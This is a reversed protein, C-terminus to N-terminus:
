LADALVRALHRADRGAGDKIQHRCSTGNAVLVTEADAARVAPLLDLEAMAMSVDVHEAEYGFSGAMGCCGSPIQQVEANPIVQLAREMSAMTGFSKQHCHGHVLFTRRASRDCPLTFRGAEAEDAVFEEFLKAHAAVLATEPGPLLAAFEDRLTLLCSPELGVIAFGQDAYPALAQITRQAEARAQEVMGAALYTRGCCLPRGPDEPAADIVHYGGARLVGVAARANGPEFYRNFTDTFLVAMREVPVAGAPAPAPRSGRYWDRRWQPLSRRASLGVVAESLRALGPVRDRLNLVPAIAAAWPAYRPLHAILRERLPIGHRRNYAHRFEIKMKAMDVGTPCERRCGKCGVCLDMAAKMEPATFADPGLQGSLALRLVNARGRTVHQEDQTVRYSPCMVGPQAKRCAGNNNCMEVAGLFGGWESWDLATDLSAAQYDPHYRLLARDDMRQPRVIIGPNLAGDPDFRDKVQEFARAIRSGFMPEHFESRVIGDGHEGSHSGKYIRVLEFAEEAIARMAGVQEPDKLNLIPRVHLCGVSAHAYWTGRTGYKQFIANIGATYDALHELPVACDEIFSVPKGASKMSMMINLGAKRIEWVEKQLGPDIAKVVADAFGLDGMLASLRELDRVLADQDPGAFEVLLLADPAGRVFKALSDRFMPIEGGLEILNRDVLEVASPGLTVIHQAAAMADHFRPFHCVGLVRHSPLRSLKLEIETSLALTGESGVLLEALNHGQASVTELNYGGVRRQVKPFRRAIEDAERDAVARVDTILEVIRAEDSVGGLNAPTDAFRHRTGDALLADVALVNDVMKGYVISRAGCSNNGTMGGITCRNATSPEIPFFLGSPKLYANLRELVLGPQVRARGAEPDFELVANMHRSFDLILGAGIAQGGQSTGGGRATVPVGAERAIDLATAVDDADKPTAVATPMIQYISADTSYRGRSFGDSLVEGRLARRLRGIWEPEGEHGTNATNASVPAM